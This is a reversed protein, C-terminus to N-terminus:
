LDEIIFLRIRDLNKEIECINLCNKLARAEDKLNISRNRKMKHLTICYKNMPIITKDEM